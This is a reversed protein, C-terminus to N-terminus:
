PNRVVRFGISESASDGGLPLRASSRCDTSWSDWHGGRVVRYPGSGPGTPDTQAASPYTGWFDSVWEAVNGVMDHLGFGNAPKLCRPWTWYKSNVTVWGLDPLVGDVNSGNPEVPIGHFATTTGGRCAYEWEAETPLRMGSVALFADVNLISVTEVPREGPGPYGNAAQFYSPNAGLMQGSWEDQTVESRGMYFASSLTVQRVPSEDPDCPGFQSASCGMQFTGAPILVMEILTANDRVRWALGTAEIAARIAPSTVVAPNPASELLTAWSPTTAGCPGWASLLLTLDSGAVVGDDDIDTDFAGGGASGWSSLVAALDLGDTQGSGNVDAPCSAFAQPAAALLLAAAFSAFRPASARAHQAAFAHFQPM